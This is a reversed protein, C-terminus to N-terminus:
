SEAPPEWHIPPENADTEFKRMGMLQFETERDYFQYNLVFRHGCEGEFSLNITTGWGAPAEGVCLTGKHTIHTHSKGAFVSVKVPRLKDSGCEPCAVVQQPDDQKRHKKRFKSRTKKDFPKYLDM